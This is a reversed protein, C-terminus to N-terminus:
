IRPSSLVPNTKHFAAAFLARFEQETMQGKAGNCGCCCMAWNWSADDGGLSLPHKHDVTAANDPLVGRKPPMVLKITCYTCRRNGEHWQALRWRKADGKRRIGSCSVTCKIAPAFEM